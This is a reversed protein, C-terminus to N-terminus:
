MKPLESSYLANWDPHNQIAELFVSLKCTLEHDNDIYGDWGVLFSLIKILYANDSFFAYCFVPDVLKTEFMEIEEDGYCASPNKEKRFSVGDGKTLISFEDCESSTFLECDLNDPIIIEKCSFCGPFVLVIAKMM